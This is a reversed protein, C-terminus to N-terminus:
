EVMGALDPAVRQLDSRLRLLALDAAKAELMIDFPPLGRAAALLAACDFPSIFDAHQGLQPALVRQEAGHRAPLVHAETRQTSLHIKPRVGRPWTALALALAEPLAIRLPNNLQHHLVDLLVPVGTQQHLRLLEALGFSAEDPEIVVRRQAHAPLREYGAALRHLAAARDGQAGGGHLVLVGEAGCGLADLLRAGAEIMAAARAAVAPEPAGLVLSLPLHLSLRICHARAMAGVEALVAASEGLQRLWAADALGEAPLLGGGLRYCGVRQEALYLLVDRLQLASLSLHPAAAGRMGPARLGPRGMIKTAIGLQIM